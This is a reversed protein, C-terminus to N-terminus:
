SFAFTNIERTYIQLEENHYFNKRNYSKQEKFRYIKMTIFIREIIIIIIKTRRTLILNTVTIFFVVCIYIIYIYLLDCNFRM